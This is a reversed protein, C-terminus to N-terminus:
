NLDIIVQDPIDLTNSNGSTLPAVKKPQNPSETAEQPQEKKIPKTTLSSGSVPPTVTKSVKNTAPSTVPAIPQVASRLSAKLSEYEKKLRNIESQQKVSQTQLRKLEKNKSVLQQNSQDLTQELSFIDGKINQYRKSLAEFANKRNEVEQKLAVNQQQNFKLQEMQKKMLREKEDILSLTKEKGAATTDLASRIITNEHELQKNQAKVLDLNTKLAEVMQQATILKSSSADLQKERNDNVEKLESHKSQLDDFKQQLTQITQKREGEEDQLSSINQIASQKDLYFKFAGFAAAITVLVLLALMVGMFRNRKQLVDILQQVYFQSDRSAAYQNDRTFESSSQTSQQNSELSDSIDPQM